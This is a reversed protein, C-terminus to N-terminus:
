FHSEPTPTTAAQMYFNNDQRIEQLSQHNAIFTEMCGVYGVQERFALIIRESHINLEETARLLYREHTNYDELKAETPALLYEKQRAIQNTVALFFFELDEDLEDDQQALVSDTEQDDVNGTTFCSSGLENEDWWSITPTTQEEHLAPTAQDPGYAAPFNPSKWNRDGFNGKKGKGKSHQLKGKGKENARPSNAYCTNTTHGYKQCTDCWLGSTQPPPGGTRNPNEFCWDTSHGFKQHIDCWLKQADFPAEHGKQKGHGKGKPNWATQAPHSWPPTWEHEHWQRGKGKQPTWDTEHWPLGKGPGKGNPGGKHGKGKFMLAKENLTKTTKETSLKTERLKMAIEDAAAQSARSTENEKDKKKKSILIAEESLLKTKVSLVTDFGSKSYLIGDKSEKFEPRLGNGLAYIWAGTSVKEGLKALTSVIIDVRSTYTLITETPSQTIAYFEVRVTPLSAQHLTAMTFQSQFLQYLKKGENVM